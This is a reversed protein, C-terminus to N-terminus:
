PVACSSLCRSVPLTASREVRALCEDAYSLADVTERTKDSALSSSASKPEEAASVALVSLVTLAAFFPLVTMTRVNM